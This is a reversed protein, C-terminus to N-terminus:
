WSTLLELNYAFYGNELVDFFSVRTANVDQNSNIYQIFADQYTSFIPFGEEDKLKNEYIYLQQQSSAETFCTFTLDPYGDTNLDAYHINQQSLTCNVPAPVILPEDWGFSFSTKFPV